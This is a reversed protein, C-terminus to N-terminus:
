PNLWELAFKSYKCLAKEEAAGAAAAAADAEAKKKAADKFHMGTGSLKEKKEKPLCQLPTKVPPKICPPKPGPCHCSELKPCWLGGGGTCDSCENHSVCVDAQPYKECFETKTNQCLPVCYKAFTELMASGDKDQYMSFVSGEAPSWLGNSVSTEAVCTLAGFVSECAGSLAAIDSDCFSMSDMLASGQKEITALLSEKNGGIRSWAKGKSGTFHSVMKSPPPVFLQERYSCYRTVELISSASEKVVGDCDTYWPVPDQTICAKDTQPKGDPGQGEVGGVPQTQPDRFDCPGARCSRDWVGGDKDEFLRSHFRKGDQKEPFFEICAQCATTVNSFTTFEPKGDGYNVYLPTPGPVQSQEISLLSIKRPKSRTHLFSGETTSVLLLTIAVLRVAASLDWPAHAALQMTEACDTSM